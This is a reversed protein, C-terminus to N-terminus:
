HTPPAPAPHESAPPDTYRTSLLRLNIANIVFHATAPAVLNGTAEFLAGLGFGAAIAFVTWPLFERRPVFHVLGFLLSAAVYGIAPQLAGRFLAEEAIGSVIGLVVCEAVGLRGLVRALGRALDEGWRTRRTIEQSLWVVALGAVVGALADRPRVGTAAAAESVYLLSRGALWTWLWAVALMVGYFVVALRVLSPRAPRSSAPSVTFPSTSETPDRDPAAGPQIQVVSPRSRRNSLRGGPRTAEPRHGVDGEGPADSKIKM